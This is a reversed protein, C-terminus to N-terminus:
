RKAVAQPTGFIVTVGTTMLAFGPIKSVIVGLM